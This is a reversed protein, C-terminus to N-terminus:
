TWGDFQWVYPRNSQVGHQLNLKKLMLMGAWKAHGPVEDPATKKATLM